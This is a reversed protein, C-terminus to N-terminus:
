AGGEDTVLTSRKGDVVPLTTFPLNFFEFLAHSAKRTKSRKPLLYDFLGQANLSVGFFLRQHTDFEPENPLPDPKYGRTEFGVALDVFRTWGGYRSDRLRHIGGLHLAALYTQGTYDEAININGDNTLQRRYARSPWFQVRFDFLEDLRKSNSMAFGLVAGITNFALDGLSFEYYAGDKVEVLFFLAQALGCGILSSTRMSYGGWQHLLETGARALGMTAWAHGLKDAGGAYTDVAFWRDGGWRFGCKEGDTICREENRQKNHYWAFYMWTTFAAYVGGITAASAIKATRNSRTTEPQRPESVIRPPALDIWPTDVAQALPARTAGDRDHHTTDPPSPDAVAPPRLWAIM